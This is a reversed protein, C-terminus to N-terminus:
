QDIAATGADFDKGKSSSTISVVANQISDGSLMLAESPLDDHGCTAQDKDVKLVKAAPVDGIMKVTGTISGGNSVDGGEYASLNGVLVAISLMAVALFCVCSKLLKGM